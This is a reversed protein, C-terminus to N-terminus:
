ETVFYLEEIDLITFATLKKDKKYDRLLVMASKKLQKGEPREKIKKSNEKTLMFYFYLFFDQLGKM